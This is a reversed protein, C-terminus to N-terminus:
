DGQVVAMREVVSGDPEQRKEAIQIGRGELGRILEDVSKPQTPAHTGSLQQAKDTHIGSGIDMKGLFNVKDRTDLKNREALLEDTLLAAGEMQRRALDMHQEAAIAQVQPLYKARITEYTDKHRRRSWEWLTMQSISPANEDAQLNRAAMGTNGSCAAVEMLARQIEAETYTKVPKKKVIETM